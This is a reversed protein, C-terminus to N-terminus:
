HIQSAAWASNSPDDTAAGHSSIVVRARRSMEGFYALSTSRPYSPRDIARSTSRAFRSCIATLQHATLPPQPFRPASFNSHKVSTKPHLILSPQPVHRHERFVPSLAESPSIACPKDLRHAAAVPPSHCPSNTPPAAIVRHFPPSRKM